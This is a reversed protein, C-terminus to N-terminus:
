DGSKPLILTGTSTGTFQGFGGFIGEKAGSVLYKGTDQEDFSGSAGTFQGTGGAFTGHFTFSFTLDPNPCFTGADTAAEFFLQDGNEATAVGHLQQLPVERATGAPCNSTPPVVPAQFEALEQFFFRGINCNLVGQHPLGASSGDDNTDIHTEVGSTFTASVTCNVARQTTDHATVNASAGALLLVIGPGLTLYRVNM